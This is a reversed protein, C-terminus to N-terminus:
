QLKLGCYKFLAGIAVFGAFHNRAKVRDLAYQALEPDQKLAREAEKDIAKELPDSKFEKYSFLPSPASYFLHVCEHILAPGVKRQGLNQRLIIAYKDARSVAEFHPSINVRAVRLGKQVLADIALGNFPCSATRELFRAVLPEFLTDYADSLEKLFQELGKLMSAKASKEGGVLHEHEKPSFSYIRGKLRRAARAFRRYCKATQAELASEERVFSEHAGLYQRFNM